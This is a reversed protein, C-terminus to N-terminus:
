LLLRHANQQGQQMKADFVDAQAWREGGEQGGIHCCIEDLVVADGGDGGGFCVELGDEALVLPHQLLLVGLSIRRVAHSIHSVGHSICGAATHFQQQRLLSPTGVPRNSNNLGRQLANQLM